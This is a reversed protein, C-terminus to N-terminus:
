AVGPSATPAISGLRQKYRRLIRMEGDLLGAPDSSAYQARYDDISESIVGPTHNYLRGAVALAVAMVDDPITAYGADYVVTAVWADTPTISLVVTDGIGDWTWEDDVTLTTGDVTVSTVDTVPRQPIRITRNSAVALTHTYTAAEIFQGTYNTVTGEAMTRVLTATATDVDSQVYSALQELTFLAM